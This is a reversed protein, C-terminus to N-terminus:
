LNQGIRSALFKVNFKEFTKETKFTCQCVQFLRVQLTSTKEIGFILLNFITSFLISMSDFMYVLCGARRWQKLM